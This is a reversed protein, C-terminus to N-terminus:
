AAAHRSRLKSGLLVGAASTIAVSALGAASAIPSAAHGFFPMDLLSAYVGPAHLAASKWTPSPAIGAIFGTVVGGGLFAVSSQLKFTSALVAREMSSGSQLPLLAGFAMTGLILYAVIIGLSVALVRRVSKRRRVSM